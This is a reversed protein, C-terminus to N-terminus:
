QRSFFATVVRSLASADDVGALERISHMAFTAVGVDVTNVGLQTATLPGITSGCGLDSRMVFSQTAVGLKECYARFRAVSDSNSAYRQNANVKIVPGGNLKPAHRADHKDAFNPHIGHANDVSLMLSKSIM